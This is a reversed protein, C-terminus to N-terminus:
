RTSYKDISRDVDDVQANKEGTEVLGDWVFEKKQSNVKVKYAEIIKSMCRTDVDKKAEIDGIFKGDSNEIAIFANVKEETKLEDCEDDAFEAESNAKIEAFREDIANKVAEKRRAIEQTKMKENADSLAKITKEGDSLKAKLEENETEISKIVSDLSVKIEDEGEGFVVTANVATKVGEVIEGNDKVASSVFAEHKDQSLLAVKEGVVEIVNFGKFNGQLSKKNMITEKEKKTQPNKNIREQMSAVKLTENKITEVGLASLVKINADAVAPMVDLGLITSGLIQYKTFVETSGELHGEEILTEISIPMGEFGQEKLKEVLEQAYWKWIWGQGVIWRKGDKEEIRIDKENEFYGVIREATSKLFSAYVKDGKQVKEFNHGDGIKEGVYAVLIPTGAFLARHEELNIYRWDNRNIEDNLLWLEVKQMQTKKDALLKLEGKFSNFNSGSKTKFNSM